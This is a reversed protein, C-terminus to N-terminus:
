QMTKPPARILHCIPMLVLVYVPFSVDRKTALQLCKIERVDETLLMPSGSREYYKQQFPPAPRVGKEVTRTQQRLFLAKHKAM